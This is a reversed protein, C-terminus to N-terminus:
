PASINLFDQGFGRQAVIELAQTRENYLQLDGFDASQLAITANLVEELLPLLEVERLLRTSLQHLRNMATLEAVLESATAIATTVQSTILECFDLYREDFRLRSSLGLVLFGALQHAINSRIPLVVASKPPNL